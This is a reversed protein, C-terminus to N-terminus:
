ISVDYPEPVPVKNKNTISGMASINFRGGGSLPSTHFLLPSLCCKTTAHWPSVQFTEPAKM